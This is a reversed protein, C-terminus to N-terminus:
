ADSEEELDADGEALRAGLQALDALAERLAAELRSVAEADTTTARIEPAVTRTLLVRSRVTSMTATILRTVEDADLARGTRFALELEALQAEAVRKRRRAEAETVRSSGAGIEAELEAVRRELPARARAQAQAVLWKVLSPLDGPAGAELWRTITGRDRGLLKAIKSASV